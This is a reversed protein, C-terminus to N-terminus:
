QYSEKSSGEKCFYGRKEKANGFGRKIISFLTFEQYFLLLIIVLYYKYDSLNYDILLKALSETENNLFIRSEGDLSIDIKSTYLM